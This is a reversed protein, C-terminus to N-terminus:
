SLAKGIDEAKKRTTQVESALNGFQKGAKGIEKALGNLGNGTGPIPVGLVKRPRSHRRELVVGGVVGMAAGALPLVVNKIANVGGGNSSGNRSQANSSARSQSRPKQSRPKTQRKGSSGSARSSRDRSSASTARGKSSSARKSPTARKSSSGGGSSRSKSASKAAEAM